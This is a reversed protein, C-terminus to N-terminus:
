ARGLVGGIELNRFPADSPSTTWITIHMLKPLIDREKVM